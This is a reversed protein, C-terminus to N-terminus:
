NRISLSSERKSSFGKRQIPNFGNNKLARNLAGTKAYSAFVCQKAAYNKIFLNLFDDTWLTEDMQSSFADFCIVNFKEFSQYDPTTLASTVTLKEKLSNKFDPVEKLKLQELLSATVQDYIKFNEGNLWHSFDKSLEQDKEFSLIRKFQGESLLSILIEIYGLGLGVVLYHTLQVNLIAQARVIAEGYIYITESAAGTSYHMPETYEPNQFSGDMRLTPSGDKTIEVLKIRNNQM